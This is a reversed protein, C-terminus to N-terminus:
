TCSLALGSAQNFVHYNGNGTAKFSWNDHAGPSAPNQTVAAGTVGIQAPDVGIAMGSHRAEIHLFTNMPFGVCEAATKNAPPAPGEIDIRWQQMPGGWYWTQFVPFGDNEVNPESKGHMALGSNRNRIVYHGPATSVPVFCWDQNYSGTFSEQVIPIDAAKSAGQVIQL